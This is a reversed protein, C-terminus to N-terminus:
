VPFLTELRYPSDCGPSHSREMNLIFRIDILSGVPTVSVIPLALWLPIAYGLRGGCGVGFARVLSLLLAVVYM